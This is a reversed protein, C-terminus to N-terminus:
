KPNVPKRTRVRRAAARAADRAAVAIARLFKLRLVYLGAAAVAEVRPHSFVPGRKLRDVLAFFVPTFVIGFLTVGLMGGLGAGGIGPRMGAGAGKAVALPLVGLMFAVSTMIIPRYRLKCAELVATRLNEGRDRAIKAFEVILIANKCALGILVVFG